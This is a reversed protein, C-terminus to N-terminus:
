EPLVVVQGDTMRKIEVELKDARVQARERLKREQVLQEELEDLIEKFGERWISGMIRRYQEITEELRNLRESLQNRTYIYYYARDEPM